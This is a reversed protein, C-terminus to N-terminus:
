LSRRNNGELRVRLKDHVILFRFFTMHLIQIQLIIGSNVKSEINFASITQNNNADHIYQTYM